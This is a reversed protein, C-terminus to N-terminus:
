NPRLPLLRHRPREAAERGQGLPRLPLRPRPRGERATLRSPPAGYPATSPPRERSSGGGVGIDSSFLPVLLVLHRRLPFSSSALTQARSPTSLSSLSCTSSPVRSATASTSRRAAAKRRSTPSLCPLPGRPGRLARPHYTPRFAQRGVASHPKIKRKRKKKYFFFLSSFFPKHPM